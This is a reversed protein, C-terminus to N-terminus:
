RKTIAYQPIVFFDLAQYKSRIAPIVGNELRRYICNKTDILLQPWKRYTPSVVPKKGFVILVIDQVFM